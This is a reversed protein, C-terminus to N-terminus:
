TYLVRRDYARNRRSIAYIELGLLASVDRTRDCPSCVVPFTQGPAVRRKRARDERASLGIPGVCGERGPLPAGLLLRTGAVQVRRDPESSVARQPLLHRYNRRESLTRARGAITAFHVHIAGPIHGKDFENQMLVEVIHGTGTDVLKKVGNTDIHPVDNMETGTLVTGRVAESRRDGRSSATACVFLVLESRSAYRFTDSVPM